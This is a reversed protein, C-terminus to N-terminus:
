CTNKEVFRKWVGFPQWISDMIQRAEADPLKLIDRRYRYLFASVRMNAACHVWVKEELALQLSVVFQQFKEESPDNFAIPIHVYNLGLDALVGAEDKLANEANHPALNIVTKFGADQILQLQEETPQGSTSLEDSYRRYNYIGDISPAGVNIPTYKGVLTKLYGAISILTANSM